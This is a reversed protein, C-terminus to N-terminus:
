YRLASDYPVDKAALAPSVGDPVDALTVEDLNKVRKIPPFLHGIQIEDPYMPRESKPIHAYREDHDPYYILKM